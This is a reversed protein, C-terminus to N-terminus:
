HNCIENNGLLFKDFNLDFYIERINKKIEKSYFNILVNKKESIFIKISKGGDNKKKIYANEATLYFNDIKILNKNDDLFHVDEIKLISSPFFVGLITFKSLNKKEDLYFKYTTKQGPQVLLNKYIKNKEDNVYVGFIKENGDFFHKSKKKSAGTLFTNSYEKCYRDILGFNKDLNLYIRLIERYAEESSPSLELSQELLIKSKELDNDSLARALWVNNYYNKEDIEYIKLYVREMINFFEQDFQNKSINNVEHLIKDFFNNKGPYIKQSLNIFKILDKSAKEFNLISASNNIRKQIYIESFGFLTGTISRRFKSEFIILLLLIITFLLLLNFFISKKKIKM